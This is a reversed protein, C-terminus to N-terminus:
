TTAEEEAQPDHTGTRTAAAVAADIRRQVGAETRRRHRRFLVLAIVAVVLAGLQPWPVTWLSIATTTPAPAGAAEDAGVAVPTVRIQGGSWFLGWLPLGAEVRVAEGPLIERRLDDDQVPLAGLPGALEIDSAAGARLNGANRLLYHVQLSGSTFPNWGSSWDLQVDEPVVLAGVEGSVRLHLRVGVRSTLQVTTSEQPVLEAVLGAPHDGPVADEPVAITFPVVASSEPELELEVGGTPGTQLRGVRPTDAFSVWLGSDTSEQGPPLVDFAGSDGVVGDSAYIRFTAPEAGFNRVEVADTVRSGPDIEHRVSIRDGAEEDQAPRLTWTTRGSDESESEGLATSAPGGALCLVTLLMTAGWRKLSRM